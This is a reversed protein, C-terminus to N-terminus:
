AGTRRAVRRRRAPARGPAANPAAHGAAAGRRLNSLVQVEGPLLSTEAVVTEVALGQALLASAGRVREALERRPHPSEATRPRDDPQAERAAPENAGAPPEPDRVAPLEQRTLERGIACVEAALAGLREERDRAQRAGAARERLLRILLLLLVANFCVQVVSFAILM